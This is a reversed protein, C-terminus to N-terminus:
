PTCPFRRKPLFADLLLEKFGKNVIEEQSVDNQEFHTHEVKTWDVGDKIGFKNNKLIFKSVEALLSTANNDGNSIIVLGTPGQSAAPGDFCILAIGRFGDNAAQHLLFRNDGAELIFVGYGILSGMFELAGKDVGNDLMLRSTKHSIKNKIHGCKYALALNLLIRALARPSGMGGAALPPFALHGVGQVPTIGDDRYGIAYQVDPLIAQKFSM